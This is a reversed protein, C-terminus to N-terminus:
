KVRDNEKPNLPGGDNEYIGPESKLVIFASPKQEEWCELNM